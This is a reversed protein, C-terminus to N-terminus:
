SESPSTLRQIKKELQQTDKEKKELARRYYKLANRKDNLKLYTDGLHELMIPDDPVLSVAKKLYTLAQEYQGRKYYVWGLSDTIYGDDPKYKLAERILREAEDLNRGLDAYTYGLYNLANAHKPDLEIVKRMSAISAEKDGSKDHVVGLRFHYKANDQETDVAKQLYIRARDYAEIEEYMTGLYYNFEANDPSKEVAGLLYEIAEDTRADEHLLFAVHVVADEYFRTEPKVKRFYAVAAENKELGYSAIGALHNIESSDPAGKLLGQVVIEADEYRKPDLYLRVVSVIVEFEQSSRQGLRELLRDSEDQQGSRAYHLALEFTAHINDPDQALIEESLKRAATTNGQQQYLNLLEFKPDMRNPALEIARKFYKESAKPDDKALHVRGLLFHGAYSDPFHALMENLVREANDTDNQALYLSALLTYVRDNQQDLQLVREYAEQAAENEKRVQQIGGYIILSKVDDPDKDLVDELVEIALLDEKNQLYLTALERRLYLSEEDSEIAKRMLIIAKDLQGQRRASQAQMFYFYQNPEPEFGPLRPLQKLATDGACGLLLLMAVALATQRWFYIRM